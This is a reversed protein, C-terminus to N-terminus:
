LQYLHFRTRYYGIDRGKEFVSGNGVGFFNQTNNPAFVDALVALDADGFVGNWVGEYNIKFNSTGFYYAALLSHQSSFPVKRFGEQKTYKFGGGLMFGDDLNYGMTFLPM